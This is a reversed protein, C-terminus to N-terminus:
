IEEMLKEALERLKTRDLTQGYYEDYYIPKGFLCVWYGEKKPIFSGKTLDWLGVHGVPIIPAKNQIALRIVGSKPPQKTDINRTGEPYIFINSGRQLFKSGIEISKTDRLEREVPFATSSFFTSIIPTNFLQYKAFFFPVYRKEAVKKPNLFNFSKFPYELDRKPCCARALYLHELETEHNGAFIVARDRPINEKGEIIEKVRLDFIRLMGELLSIQSFDLFTDFIPFISDLSARRISRLTQDLINESTGEIEEIREMIIESNHTWDRIKIPEDEKEFFEEIASKM